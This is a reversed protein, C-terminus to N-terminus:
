PACDVGIQPAPLRRADVQSRKAPSAHFSNECQSHETVSRTERVDRADTASRESSDSRHNPPSGGVVPISRWRLWCPRQVSSDSTWSCEWACCALSVTSCGSRASCLAGSGAFGPRKRGSRRWDGAGAVSVACTRGAGCVLVGHRRRAPLTPLGVRIRDGHRRYRARVRIRALRSTPRRGDGDRDAGRRERRVGACQVSQRLRHRRGRGIRAADGDPTSRHAAVPAM